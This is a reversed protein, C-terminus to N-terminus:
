LYDKSLKHRIKEMSRQLISQVAIETMGEKKAIQAISQLQEHRASAIRQEREPLSGIAESLKRTAESRLASTEPGTHPSPKFQEPHVSQGEIQITASREKAVTRKDRTNHRCLDFFANETTKRFWAFVVKEDEEDRITKIGKTARILAEQRVDEYDIRRQISDGVLQQAVKEIFPIYKEIETIM